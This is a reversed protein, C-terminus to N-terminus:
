GNKPPLSDFMASNFPLKQSIERYFITSTFNQKTKTLHINGEWHQVKAAPQTPLTDGIEVQTQQKQKTPSTKRIRGHYIVM